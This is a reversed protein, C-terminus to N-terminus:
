VAAPPGKGPVPPMAPGAPNEEELPQLALNAELEDLASRAQELASIVAEMDSPPAEDADPEMGAMMGMGKMGAM